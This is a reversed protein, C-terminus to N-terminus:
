ETSARWLIGLFLLLHMFQSAASVSGTVPDESDTDDRQTLLSQTGGLDGLFKATMWLGDPFAEV